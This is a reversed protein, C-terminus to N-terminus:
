ANSIREIIRKFPGTGNSEGSMTIWKSLIFSEKLITDLDSYYGGNKLLLVLRVM